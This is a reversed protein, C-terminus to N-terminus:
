EWQDPARSTDLGADLGAADQSFMELMMAGNAVSFRAVSVSPAEATMLSKTSAAPLRPAAMAISAHHFCEPCARCPAWVNQPRSVRVAAVM